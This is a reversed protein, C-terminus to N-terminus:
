EKGVEIVEILEILVLYIVNLQRQINLLNHINKNCAQIVLQPGRIKCKKISHLITIQSEEEFIVPQVEVFKVTQHKFNIM